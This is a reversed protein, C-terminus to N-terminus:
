GRVQLGMLNYVLRAATFSAAHNGPIPALEVVDFGVLERGALLARLLAMTQWWGLGGPEPTGTAPMLGPDLADIDFTLYVRAPFDPPLEPLLQHQAALTEADWHPIRRAERLEVEELSLARVGFQALPVGLDVIRRMVCAHSYQSGEYADRLDAHADFQIVGLAEGCAARAARVGGLTVTHEGGLLVPVAGQALSESTAREIRALVQEPAGRCDVAPRTWIGEACPTGHGDWAELQVSAELLAEPGRATGSGYSVSAEYPVPIVHFHCREGPLEPIESALFPTM